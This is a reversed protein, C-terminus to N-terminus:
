QNPNRFFGQIAEFIKKYAEHYFVEPKLIDIVTSLADKELM